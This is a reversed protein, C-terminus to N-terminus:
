AMSGVEQPEAQEMGESSVEVEGLSIHLIYEEQADTAM